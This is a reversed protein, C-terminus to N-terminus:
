IIDIWPKNLVPLYSVSPPNTMVILYLPLLLAFPQEKDLFSPMEIMFIGRDYDTFSWFRVLTMNKVSLVIEYCM